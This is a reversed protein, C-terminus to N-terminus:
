HGDKNSLNLKSANRNSAGNKKKKLDLKTLSITHGRNVKNVSELQVATHNCVYIQVLVPNTLSICTVYKLSSSIYIIINKGFSQDCICVNTCQLSSSM